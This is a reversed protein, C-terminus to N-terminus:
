NGHRHNMIIWAYTHLWGTAALAAATVRMAPTRAATAIGRWIFLSLLMGGMAYLNWDDLIGLQSRWVVQLLLM